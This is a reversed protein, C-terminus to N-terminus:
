EAAAGSAHRQETICALTKALGPVEAIRLPSSRASRAIDGLAVIGALRGDDDVVPIRRVQATQMKQEVDGLSTSPFCTTVQRAMASNVRADRLAVGQTYAAMAIDRDTLVGVPRQNGDTVILCGVDGAWMLHAAHELSDEPSCTRVDRTMLDEAKM